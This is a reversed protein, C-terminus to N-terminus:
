PHRFFLLYSYEFGVLTLDIFKTYVWGAATGAKAIQDISPMVFRHRQRRVAGDKFRFTERFEAEPDTLEFKGTYEFKDFMVKSEMVRDKSYKQLSLGVWPSASDLMPDFKYKNVVEVVLEGGPKVWLFMNRFFADKDQL